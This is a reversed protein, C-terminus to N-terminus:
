RYGLCPEAGDARTPQPHLYGRLPVWASDKFLSIFVLRGHGDSDGTTEWPDVPNGKWRCHDLRGVSPGQVAGFAIFLHSVSLFSQM